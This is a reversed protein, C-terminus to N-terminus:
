TDGGKGGFSDSFMYHYSCIFILSYGSTVITDSLTVLATISLFSIKFLNEIFIFDNLDVILKVYVRLKICTKDSASIGASYM